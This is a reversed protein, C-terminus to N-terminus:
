TSMFYYIIFFKKGSIKNDNTSKFQEESEAEDSSMGVSVIYKGGIEPFIQSILGM